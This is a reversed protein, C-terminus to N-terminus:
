EAVLARTHRKKPAYEGSGRPCKQLRFPEPGGRNGTMDIVGADSRYRDDRENREQDADDDGVHACLLQAVETRLDEDHVQDSDAHQALQANQQGGYDDGAAGAARERGLDAGHFEVLLDVRQMRGPHIREFHQHQRPHQPKYDRQRQEGHNRVDDPEHAAGEQTAVEEVHGERM